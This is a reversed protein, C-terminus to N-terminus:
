VCNILMNSLVLILNRLFLHLSLSLSLSTFHYYNLAPPSTSLTVFPVHYCRVLHLLSCATAVNSFSVLSHRMAIVYITWVEDCFCSCIFYFLIFFRLSGNSLSLYIWFDVLIWHHIKSNNTRVIVYYMNYIMFYQLYTWYNKDAYYWLFILYWYKFIYIFVGHTNCMHQFIQM